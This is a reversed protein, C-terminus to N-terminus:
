KTRMLEEEELLLKQEEQSKPLDVFFFLELFSFVSVSFLFYFPLNSNHSSSHDIIANSVLPGIFSSTKGM